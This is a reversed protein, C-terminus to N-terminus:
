AAKPRETTSQAAVVYTTTAAIHVELMRADSPLHIVGSGDTWRRLSRGSTEADWWGDTLSPNDMALDSPGTAGTLVIREVLVGLLRRDDIWPMAESPATARSILIAMRSARPLVFVHRNGIVVVPRHERGGALIRLAPDDTTVPEALAHGHQQARVALRRWLPEVRAADTAFPACSMAERLLQGDGGSFDPHLTVMGDANEFMGRNGTDLYSETPLGESILIAHQDLEIHLYEIATITRDQFITAGNVLLRAAILLGDVYVAHDPSVLLDRHPVGDAFADRQIRIPQVTEPRPHIRADVRRRGIWRVPLAPGGNGTAVRDGPRLHEVAVQGDPTLIRTGALFCVVASTVTGTDEPDLGIPTSTSGYDQVSTSFLPLYPATNVALTTPTTSLYDVYLYSYVGGTWETLVLEYYNGHNPGNAGANVIPDTFITPAGGVAPFIEFTATVSIIQDAANYTTVWTGDLSSGDDLVAGFLTSSVTTDSM